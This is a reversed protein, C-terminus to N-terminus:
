GSRNGNGAASGVAGGDRPVIEIGFLEQEKAKLKARLDVALSGNANELSAIIKKANELSTATEALNRQLSEVEESKVLYQWFDRALSSTGCGIELMSLNGLEKLPPSAQFCYDSLRGLVEESPQSIWEIAENKKHYEDWFQITRENQM